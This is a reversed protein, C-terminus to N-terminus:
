VEKLTLDDSFKFVHTPRIRAHSAAIAFSIEIYTYLSTSFFSLLFRICRNICNRETCNAVTDDSCFIQFGPHWTALISEGGYKWVFLNSPMAPPPTGDNVGVSVGIFGKKVLSPIAAQTLGAHLCIDYRILLGITDACRIFIIM